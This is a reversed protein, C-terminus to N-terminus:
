LRLKTPLCSPLGSVWENTVEGSNTAANANAPESCNLGAVSVMVVSEAWWVGFFEGGMEFVAGRQILCGWFIALVEMNMDSRVAFIELEERGEFGPDLASSTVQRDQDFDLTLSCPEHAGHEKDVSNSVSAGLCIYWRGYRGRRGM